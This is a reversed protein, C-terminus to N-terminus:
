RKVLLTAGKTVTESNTKVKKAAAVKAACCSGGSAKADMPCSQKSMPCGAAEKSKCCGADDAQVGSVFGFACLALCLTLRKM